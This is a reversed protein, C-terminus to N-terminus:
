GNQRPQWDEVEERYQGAMAQRFLQTFREVQNELTFQQLIRKRGATGLSRGLKRDSALRALAAAMAQPDRVPVVFGEVGDTVAEAMGGCDTTVVPLGCAMAELAANSIGESVSSLLFADAQQLRDRVEVPSLKGALQVQGQLELDAITYLFRQREPGDGIIDYYVPLGMEKLHQVALLAYEYGKIWNLSGTSLIKFHTYAAGPHKQPPYFFDPDVAPYITWAKGPNLGYQAAEKKIDESVCHVAAARQLTVQLGQLFPKRSPDHPAAKIQSGRCSILVPMDADFLPLLDIAASNWPFYILDWRRGAFPLLHFCFFLPKFGTEPRRSYEVLRRLEGPGRMFAGMSMTALIFLRVLVNTNWKPIKLWRLNPHLLFEEDPKEICAVTVEVGKDALGIILRSIFTEPPWHLGVILVKFLSKSM